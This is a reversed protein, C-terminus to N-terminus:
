TYIQHCIFKDLALLYLMFYVGFGNFCSNGIPCGLSCCPLLFLSSNIVCGYLLTASTHFVITISKTISQHNCLCLPFFDFCKAEMDFSLLNLSIVTTRPNRAFWWYILTHKVVDSSSLLHMKTLYCVQSHHWWPLLDAHCSTNSIVNSNCLWWRIEPLFNVLVHTIDEFRCFSSVM